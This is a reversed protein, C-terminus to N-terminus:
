LGRIEADDGAAYIGFPLGEFQSGFYYAKRGSRMTREDLVKYGEAEFRAKQAEVDDYMVEFAALPGSFEKEFRSPGREILKVRHPGVVARSGFGQPDAEVFKMDFIESFDAVAADLDDVLLVCCGLKPAAAEELTAFPADPTALTAEQDGEFAVMVPIGHFDPGFLYEDNGTVDIRNVAIPLHGRKEMAAACRDANDVALAVEIFPGEIPAFSFGTTQLPEFGHEGIQVKLPFDGLEVKRFKFGLVDGYRKVSAEMDDVLYAVRCMRTESM